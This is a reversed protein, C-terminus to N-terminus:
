QRRIRNVADDEPGLIWCREDSVQGLDVPQAEAVIKLEGDRGIIGRHFAGQRFFAFDYSSKSMKCFGDTRVPNDPSIIGDDQRWLIIGGKVQSLVFGQRATETSIGALACETEKGHVPLTYPIQVGGVYPLAGPLVFHQQRFFDALDGGGVAQRQFRAGLFFVEAAEAYIRAFADVIGKKRLECSHLYGRRMVFILPGMAPACGTDIDTGVVSASMVAPVTVGIKALFRYSVVGSSM